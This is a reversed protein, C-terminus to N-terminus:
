RSSLAIGSQLVARIPALDLLEGLRAITFDPAPTSPPLVMGTRNVWVGHWGAAKAGAIDDELSNGVFFMEEPACGSPRAAHEFIRPDPKPHGFETDVVVVDFYADLALGAIKGRQMASPGNTIVGLVFHPRLRNLTEQIEPYSRLEAHEVDAYRALMKEALPKDNIGLTELADTTLQRWLDTVPLTQLEYYGTTGYGYRTQYAQELAVGLPRASLGPYEESAERCAAVLAREVAETYGILTDDLDFFIGRPTM